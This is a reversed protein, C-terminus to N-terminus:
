HRPPPLASGHRSRVASAGFSYPATGGSAFSHSSPYKTRADVCRRRQRFDNWSLNVQGCSAVTATVGTPVSPPILDQALGSTAFTMILALFRGIFQNKIVHKM